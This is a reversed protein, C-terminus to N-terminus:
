GVGATAGSGDRRAAFQKADTVTEVDEYRKGVGRAKSLLVSCWKMASNPAHPGYNQTREETGRAWNLKQSLPGGM